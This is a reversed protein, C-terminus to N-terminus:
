LIDGEQAWKQVAQEAIAQMRPLYGRIAKPTFAAQALRRRLVLLCAPRRLQRTLVALV